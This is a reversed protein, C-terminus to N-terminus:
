RDLRLLVGVIDGKGESQPSSTFIWFRDEDLAISDTYAYSGRHAPRDVILKNVWNEGNDGSFWAVTAGEGTDRGTVIMLDDDIRNMRPAWLPLEPRPQIPAWSFGNDTSRTTYCRHLPPTHYIMGLLTGDPCFVAHPYFPPGAEPMQEFDPYTPPFMVSRKQWTTGDNASVYLTSGHRSWVGGYMVGDRTQVSRVYMAAHEDSDDVPGQEEWTRGHDSSISYWTALIGADGGLPERRQVFMVLRGDPALACDGFLSDLGRDRWDAAPGEDKWSFGEDTSRWQHVYGDGGRHQDSDQHSLLIDGNGARVGAPGHLDRDPNVSVPVTQEVSVSVGNPLIVSETM